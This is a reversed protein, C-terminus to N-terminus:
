YIEISKVVGGGSAHSGYLCRDAAKLLDEAPFNKPPLSVTAAGLALHAGHSSDQYFRAMSARAQSALDNGLAVVTPRDCAALVVACGTQRFPQCVVFPHDLGRCLAVLADQARDADSVGAAEVLLLSLPRRSQRAAAVATELQTLLEAAPALTAAGPGATAPRAARVPRPSAAPAAAPKPARARGPLGDHGVRAVAASLSTVEEVMNAADGAGRDAAMGLAASFAVESLQGHARALVDRYDLTGPLQLSLVQALQRVKDELNAVLTEIQERSIDHYTRGWKQLEALAETRGDALLRAALEALRVIRVQARQAPTMWDAERGAVAQVLTAPLGWSELLRASLEVHNFGMAQTEFPGLDAGHRFAKELLRIYPAGLQDVLLLVGLDQLLGALFAEDGSENWITEALERAAVAKTLTHRWYQALLDGSIGEFLGVPLSFGLVLMKLPKTGLLALAQNLDSVERPLGFLSSNVVRLLRSTLAPDNEICEKLARADVTPNSTLELVEMAVAPLSFLQRARGVLQALIADPQTM